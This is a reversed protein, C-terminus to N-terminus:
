LNMTVIKANQKVHVLQQRGVEHWNGSKSLPESAVICTKGQLYFLSPPIAKGSGSYSFRTYFSEKGNSVAFNMYAASRLGMEKRLQIVKDLTALLASKMTQGDAKPDHGILDLFLAFVHESDTNGQIMGFSTDSLEDMLPRKMRAFDKLVGNHMWLFPGYQFPHCNTQSVPMNASADRVHAFFHRSYVKASIQRLNRNSWAPEVSTFLGPEPDDHLPYWGLGFGDGNVPDHRLRAHRSQEVLSHESSFLWDAMLVEPGTYSLFRCM